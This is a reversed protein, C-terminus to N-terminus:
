PAPGFQPRILTREELRTTVQPASVREGNVLWHSFEERPQDLRM